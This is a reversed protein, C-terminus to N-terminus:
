LIESYGVDETRSNRAGSQKPMSYGFVRAYDEPTAGMAFAEAIRRENATPQKNSGNSYNKQNDKSNENKQWTAVSARWNKMKNKGILWGKSEYFNVFTEADVNYNKEFVYAAVEDVTPPKFVLNEKKIKKEDSLVVPTTKNINIKENSIFLDVDENVNENENPQKLNNKPQKKANMNGFPAGGKCGNTYRSNNVDIQPKILEMAISVVDGCETMTGKIGYEIIALALEGRMRENKVAKIARLFSSYFVFSNREM